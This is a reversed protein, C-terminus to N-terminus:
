STRKGPLRQSGKLPPCDSTSLGQSSTVQFLLRKIFFVFVNVIFFVVIIITPIIVVILVLFFVVVIITPIIVVIIIVFLYDNYLIKM